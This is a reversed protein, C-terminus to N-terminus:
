IVKRFILDSKTDSALSVGALAWWFPAFQTWIYHDFVCMAVVGVWAYLWKTKILCYVTVFSWAIAGIPGIQYMIILPLNHVTGDWDIGLNFGDGFISTNILRDIIITSRGSTIWRLAELDLAVDGKIVAMLVAINQNGEYLPALFGLVFWLGVLGVLSGSVIIFSRSFDRRILVTIGLVGLIFVAELAGIFFM